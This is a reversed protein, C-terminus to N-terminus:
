RLIYGAVAVCLRESYASAFHQISKPTREAYNGSCLLSVM